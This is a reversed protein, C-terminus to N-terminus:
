AASVTVLIVGTVMVVMGIFKQVTLRKVSCGFLGFHDILAGGTSAGILYTIVTMGNGLAGSVMASFWIVIASLVGGGFWAWIPTGSRERAKMEGTKRIAPTMALCIIASFLLGIMFNVCSALLPSDMIKGFSGNISMQLGRLAGTGIGLCKWFLGKGSGSPSEEGSGNGEASMSKRVYSVLLVGAFTLVAGAVRLATLPIVAARLWGFHDVLIGMLIQGLAPFVVTQVAGIKRLLLVNGTIFCVGCPGGLFMWFPNGQLSGLKEIGQAGSILFAAALTLFSVIYTIVSTYYPSGVRRRLRNNVSTQVPGMLGALLGVFLMGEKGRVNSRRKKRGPQWEM